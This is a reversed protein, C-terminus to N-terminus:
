PILKIFQERSESGSLSVTGDYIDGFSDVRWILNQNYYPAIVSLNGTFNVILIDESEADIYFDTHWLYENSNNFLLVRYVLADNTKLWKFELEDVSLDAFNDPYILHPKEILKYSVTDSVSYYGNKNYTNMYYSWMQGVPNYHQVNRDLYENLNVETYSLSDVLVPEPLYDGYRFIKVYDLRTDYISNWQIRIWNGDPVTDIGNNTDNLSFGSIQDGTDGLHPILVAPIPPTTDISIVEKGTCGFIMMLAIFSIIASIKLM